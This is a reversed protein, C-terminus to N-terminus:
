FNITQILVKLIQILYSRFAELNPNRTLSYNCTWKTYYAWHDELTDGTKGTVHTIQGTGFSARREEGGEDDSDNFDDLNGIDSMKMSMLSALSQM